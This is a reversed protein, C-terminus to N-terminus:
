CGHCRYGLILHEKFRTLEEKTNENLPMRNAVANLIEDIKEIFYARYNQYTDEHPRKLTVKKNRHGDNRFM